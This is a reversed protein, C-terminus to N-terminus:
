EAAFFEETTLGPDRGSNLDDLRRRVEEIWEQRYLLEPGGDLSELLDRTLEEREEFSLELIEARLKEVSRSM